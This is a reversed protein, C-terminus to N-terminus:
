RRATTPAQPGPARCLELIAEQLVTAPPRKSGKLARDTEALVTFARRLDTATFRRAAETLDRAKFPPAGAMKAAEQPKQGSALAQRMRAVMRLQRAIMALLRLPPERAALMSSASTLARQEDRASVGDVVAWISEIRVRTVCAEVHELEIRSGTAVYLSLRELADDLAALDDGVAEVLAEAAPATLAHGRGKAERDAFARLAPGKLPAADTWQGQKKAVKALKSRGDLKQAVLVL